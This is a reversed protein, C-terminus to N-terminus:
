GMAPLSQTVEKNWCWDVGHKLVQQQLENIISYFTARPSFHM